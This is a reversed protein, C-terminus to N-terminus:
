VFVNRHDKFWRLLWDRTVKHRHSLVGAKAYALSLPHTAIQYDPLLQVLEGTDLERDVTYSPLRAIGLDRLVYDRAALYHNTALKGRVEVRVEEKSSILTWVNWDEQMSNLICVQNSLESPHKLSLKKAMRPSCVIVDKLRGLYRAVVDNDEVETARIAFDVKDDAFSKVENSLDTDFSVGPLLTRMESVLDPFIVVGLSIPASLRILGIDKENLDRVKREAETTLDIIKQSYHFLAKGAETFRVNRTTRFFLRDEVHAELRQVQKSLQAKSRNLSEAALTFSKLRAVEHFALLDDLHATLTEM